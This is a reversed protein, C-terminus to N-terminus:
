VEEKEKEKKNKEMTFIDGESIYTLIPYPLIPCAMINM